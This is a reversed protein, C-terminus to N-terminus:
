VQKSVRERCSARGIEPLRDPLAVVLAHGGTGLGMALATTNLVTRDGPEPHGVLAVYALAPVVGEGPVDVGVERVGDWERRVDVM